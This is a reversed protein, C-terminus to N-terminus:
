LVRTPFGRAESDRLLIELEALKREADALSEATTDRPQHGAEHSGTKMRNARLMDIQVRLTNMERQCWRVLPEADYLVNLV